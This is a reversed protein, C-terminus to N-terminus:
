IFPSTSHEHILVNLMSSIEIKGLNNYLNLAVKMLIEEFIHTYVSFNTRFYIYFLLSVVIVSVNKLLAFHSFDRGLKM